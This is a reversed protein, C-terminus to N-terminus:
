KPYPIPNSERESKEIGFKLQPLFITIKPTSILGDTCTWLLFLSAKIRTLPRVRSNSWVVNVAAASYEQLKELDYLFNQKFRWKLPLM